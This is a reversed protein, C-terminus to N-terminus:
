GLYLQASIYNAIPMLICWIAVIFGGIKTLFDIFDDGALENNLILTSKVPDLHM